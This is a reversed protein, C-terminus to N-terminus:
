VLSAVLIDCVPNLPFFPRAQSNDFKVDRMYIEEGDEASRCRSIVLNLIKHLVYRYSKTRQM